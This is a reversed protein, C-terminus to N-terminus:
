ADGDLVKCLLTLHPRPILVETMLNVNLPSKRDGNKLQVVRPWTHYKWAFADDTHDGWNYKRCYTYLKTRGNLLPHLLKEVERQDDFIISIYGPHDWADQCSYCTRIGRAWLKEMLPAIMEDIQVIKGEYELEVYPHDLSGM